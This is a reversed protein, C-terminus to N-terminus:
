KKNLMSIINEFDKPKSYYYGQVTDCDISKLYEVQEKEEVGEAVVTIGLKHSLQIMNEVIFRSKDNAGMDVVFSRDLKLVDIPLKTLHNLSSYGTGFDDLAISAGLEKMKLLYKINRDLSKMIMSETIEIEIYKPSVNFENVLAIFEEVLNGERLQIESLNVAIKFNDYGNDLLYKIKIFVERLVFNGIPIILRTSEAIPIFESPSVFGIENSNWRLLAEFGDVQNNILKIKPQFVVFMEENELATRLGRQISYIKNIEKSINSNFIQWQNKGNNKAFYMASDASKLLDEFEQGHDPFFAVGVSATSYINKNNIIYPNKLILMIDKLIAEIDILNDICPNFIVFEDGSFRCLIENNNFIEKLDESFKKIFIDGCNHGYSDNIFKFNDIDIIILAGRKELVINEKLKKQIIKKFQKRNNFGTIEDYSSVFDLKIKAEKENTINQAYGEFELIGEEKNSKVEGKISLWITKSMNNKIKIEIDQKDNMLGDLLIDVYENYMYNRCENFTMVIFDNEYGLIEKNNGYLVVLDKKKNAYIFLGKISKVFLSKFNELFEEKEKFYYLSREDVKLSSDVEKNFCKDRVMM